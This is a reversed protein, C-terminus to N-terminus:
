NRAALEYIETIKKSMTRPSFDLIRNKSLQSYRDLNEKDVMRSLADCLELHNGAQFFLGGTSGVVEPIATSNSAVIPLKYSMAELLVLGFGETKSALVFIDLKRYFADLDSIGGLWFVNSEIELVQCYNELEKRLPGAGAIVLVSNPQNKHFAAFGALLTPYDKQQVLRGATGVITKGKTIDDFNEPFPDIPPQPPFSEFGYHIVTVNTEKWVEGRELMSKKVAESIAIQKHSRADVILALIRSLLKPANHFFPEADHRSSIIPNGTRSFIALLQARPLHAHVAAQESKLYKHLLLLQACPNKGTLFNNVKVGLAEFDDQLAPSDKLYAVEVSYGDRIQQRALVLLQNEAGGRNITTIIHFVKKM